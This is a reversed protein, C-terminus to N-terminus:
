PVMDFLLLEADDSTGVLELAGAKEIAVGDGPRLQEGNLTATGRAVQV